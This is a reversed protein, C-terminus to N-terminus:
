AVQAVLVDDLENADDGVIVAAIDGARQNCLQAHVPVQEVINTTIRRCRREVLYKADHQIDGRAEVIQVAPCRLDDM